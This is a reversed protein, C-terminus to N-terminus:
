DVGIAKLDDIVDGPITYNQYRTCVHYKDEHKHDLAIGSKEVAKEYAAKVEPEDHSCEFNLINKKNIVTILGIM